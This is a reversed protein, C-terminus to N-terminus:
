GRRTSDPVALIHNIAVDSIEDLAAHADDAEIRSWAIEEALKANPAEITMTWEGTASGSVIFKPM